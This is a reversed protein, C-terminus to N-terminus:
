QVSLRFVPKITAYTSNHWAMLQPENGRPDGESFEMWRTPSISEGRLLAATQTRNFVFTGGYFPVKSALRAGDTKLRMEPRPFNQLYDELSTYWEPMNSWEAFFRCQDLTINSAQGNLFIQRKGAFQTQMQPLGQPFTASVDVSATGHATFWLDAILVPSLEGIRSTRVWHYPAVAGNQNDIDIGEQSPVALPTYSGLGQLSAHWQVFVVVEDTQMEVTFQASVDLPEYAVDATAYKQLFSATEYPTRQTVTAKIGRGVYPLTVAHSPGTGRYWFLGAACHKGGISNYQCYYDHGCVAPLSDAGSSVPSFMDRTPANPSAVVGLYAVAPLDFVPDVPFPTRYEFLMADALKGAMYGAEDWSSGATFVQSASYGRNHMGRSLHLTESHPPLYITYNYLRLSANPPVGADHMSVFVEVNQNQLGQGFVSGLLTSESLRSWYEGSINAAPAANSQYYGTLITGSTADFTPLPQPDQVRGFSIEETQSVPEFRVTTGTIDHGAFRFTGQASQPLVPVLTASDSAAGSQSYLLSVGKLMVLSYDESRLDAIQNNPIHHFYAKDANNPITERDPLMSIASGVGRIDPQQLRYYQPEDFADHSAPRRNGAEIVAPVAVSTFERVCTAAFDWQEYDLAMASNGGTSAGRAAYYPAFNFRTTVNNYGSTAIGDIEASVLSLRLFACSPSTIAENRTVPVFSHLSYNSDFFGGGFDPWYDVVKLTACTLWEKGNRSDKAIATCVDLYADIYFRTDRNLLLIEAAVTATANQDFFVVAASTATDYGMGPVVISDASPLVEWLDPRVAPSGGAIVRKSYGAHAVAGGVCPYGVTIGDIKTRHLHLAREAPEVLYLRPLLETEPYGDLALASIYNGVGGSVMLSADGTVGAWESDGAGVWPNSANDNLFTNVNAPSLLFKRRYEYGLNEFVVVPHLQISPSIAQMFSSFIFGTGDIIRWPNISQAPVGAVYPRNALPGLGAYVNSGARRLSRHRAASGIIVHASLNAM